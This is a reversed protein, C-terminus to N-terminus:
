EAANEGDDRDVPEDVVEAEFIDYEEVPPEGATLVKQVWAELEARAPNHVVVEQPMALGNLAVHRDILERAARVASLQEPHKPDVAKAWVGKLLREYRMSAIQRMQVRDEVSATTALVAEVAQQASKANSYGLAEAIEEYNAGAWRLGAAAEAKKPVRAPASM